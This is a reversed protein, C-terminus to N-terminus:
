LGLRTGTFIARWSMDRMPSWNQLSGKGLLNLVEGRTELEGAHPGFKETNSDGPLEAKGDTLTASATIAQTKKKRRFYLLWAGLALLLIGFITAGVSIGVIEGTSVRSRNTKSESAPQTSSASPTSSATSNTVGPGGDVTLSATGSSHPASTATADVRVLLPASVPTFRELDTLAWAVGITPAYATFLQSYLTTSNDIMVTAATDGLNGLIASCSSALQLYAMGSPCCISTTANSSDTTWSAAATYDSPCVGPSYLVAADAIFGPPYCSAILNSDMSQTCTITGQTSNVSIWPGSTCTPLPSFVTTLATSSSFTVYVTPPREVLTITFSSM